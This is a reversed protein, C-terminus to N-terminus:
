LDSTACFIPALLVSGVYDASHERVPSRARFLRRNLGDDSWSEGISGSGVWDRRGGRWALRSPSRRPNGSRLSHRALRDWICGSHVCGAQRSHENRQNARGGCLQDGRCHLSRVFDRVCVRDRASRDRVAGTALSQLRRLQRWLLRPLVAGRYVSSTRRVPLGALAWEGGIGIGALLRFLGLQWVTQSLAAAGTFIAYVFITAALVRSRGFMDAIPRWVLSVGWGVLFLAFLISGAIGVNGPIAKYGSKPLLETLASSLVLAYIVSDMGDLTWGVWAGWFGTIQERSLKTHMARPLTAAEHAM